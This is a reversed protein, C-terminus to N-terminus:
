KGTSGDNNDLVLERKTGRVGGSVLAMVIKVWAKM